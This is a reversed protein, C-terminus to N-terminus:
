SAMARPSAAVSDSTSAPRDGRDRLRYWCLKFFFRSANSEWPRMRNLRFLDEAVSNVAFTANTVAARYGSQKLMRVVEPSFDQARGSPYAFTTVPLGIQEEIMRKSRGIEMEAQTASIQSLIPHSVTHSGFRHGFRAMDRVQDWSMMLTADHSAPQVDLSRCVEAIARQMQEMPLSRLYFLTQFGAQSRDHPTRLGVPQTAIPLEAVDRRTQEFARLVRDFWLVQGTGICGTALYFTAPVGCATLIPHAFQYNDAYGDDFTVAICRPPLPQGALIREVIEEVTLAAFHRAICRMQREFQAPHVTDIGFAGGSPNVRHYTLIEFCQAQKKGAWFRLGRGSVAWYSDAWRNLADFVGLRHCLTAGLDLPHWPKSIDYDSSYM